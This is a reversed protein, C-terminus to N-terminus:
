THYVASMAPVAPGFRVLRPQNNTDHLDPDLRLCACRADRSNDPCSHHVGSHAALGCRIESRKEIEVGDGRVAVVGRQLSKAM